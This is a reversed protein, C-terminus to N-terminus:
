CTYDHPDIPRFVSPILRVEAWPYMPALVRRVIEANVNCQAAKMKDFFVVGKTPHVIWYHDKIHKILGPPPEVAVELAVFTLRDSDEEFIRESM